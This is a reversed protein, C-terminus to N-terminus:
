VKVFKFRGVSFDNMNETFLTKFDRNQIRIKVRVLAEEAEKKSAFIMPYMHRRTGGLWYDGDKGEYVVRDGFWITYYEM